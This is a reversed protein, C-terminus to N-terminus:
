KRQAHMTWLPPYSPLKGPREMECYLLKIGTASSMGEWRGLGAVWQYDEAWSSFSSMSGGLHRHIIAWSSVVGSNRHKRWKSRFCEFVHAELCCPRKNLCVVELLQKDRSLRVGHSCSAYKILCKELTKEESAVSARCRSGNPYGSTALCKALPAVRCGLTCNYM